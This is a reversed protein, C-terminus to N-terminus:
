SSRAQTAQRSYPRVCGLPETRRTTLYGRNGQAQQQPSPSTRHTASCARRIYRSPIRYRHSTSRQCPCGCGSELPFSARCKHQYREFLHPVVLYRGEHWGAEISGGTDDDNRAGPFFVAKHDVTPVQDYEHRQKWNTSGHLKLITIPSSVNSESSGVFGYGDYPNWKGAKWLAAEHLIDWNFTLVIDGPELHRVWCDLVHNIRTENRSGLSYQYHLFAETIMGVFKPRVEKWPTKLALPGIEQDALDLLTCLSELNPQDYQDPPLKALITEIYEVVERKRDTGMAHHGSNDRVFPWLDAALPYGAFHSAGAGLVFVRRAM